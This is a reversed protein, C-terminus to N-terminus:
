RPLNKLQSPLAELRILWDNFHPCESRIKSLGIGIAAVTGMLPKEYRVHLELIRKSPATHRSDNIEEPTQFEQRIAAFPSALDPRGIAHAFKEPDSFLLGEFEHMAVFPVFRRPNFRNGASQVLDALLAVEVHEAKGSAGQVSASPKRGPWDEPLAYYDVFM